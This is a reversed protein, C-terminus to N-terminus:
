HLAFHFICLSICATHSPSLEAASKLLGPFLVCDPGPSPLLASLLHGGLSHNRSHAASVGGKVWRKRRELEVGSVRQPKSPSSQICAPNSIPETLIEM